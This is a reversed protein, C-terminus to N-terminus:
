RGTKVTLASGDSTFVITGNLDTRYLRLGASNLKDLTEQHPHGYDNGAGVFIVAYKPSVAKLFEATTSSSSGHHGVKLVDSKLNYGRALIEKESESQADGTFLFSTSGYELKLVISYNNMNEYSQSNPALITFHVDSLNFSSGPTPTTVTLGKSKIANLVDLFTATTASVRPMYIQGIEFQNIVADMGGIHDEHPHTGVVIDFKKIGMQKLTTVLSNAVSNTGADIIMAKDDYQIVTADAQGVDLFTVKLIKQAPTRPSTTTNPTPSTANPPLTISPLQCGAFIVLLLALIAFIVPRLIRM